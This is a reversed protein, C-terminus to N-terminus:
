EDRTSDPQGIWGFDKGSALHWMSKRREMELLLDYFLM